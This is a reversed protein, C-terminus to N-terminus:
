RPHNSSPFFDGDAEIYRSEVTNYLRVSWVTVLLVSNKVIAKYKLLDLITYKRDTHNDTGRMRTMLEELSLDSPGSRRNIKAVSNIIKRADQGKGHAVKWRFSEPVYRYCIDQLLLLIRCNTM